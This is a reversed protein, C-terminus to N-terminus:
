PKVRWVTAQRGSATAWTKGSDIVLGGAVLEVRRPRQTNQAMGLGAQIEEDTAGTEGRSQLYELVRARLTQANSRIAQAAAVSTASHQQAPPDAFLARPTTM